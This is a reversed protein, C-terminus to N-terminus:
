FHTFGVHEGICILTVREAPVALAHLQSLVQLVQLQDYLDAEFWLVYDGDRAGDLRRDREAFDEEPAGLFAARLRRLEGDAVDPVPGEHLVDRWVLVDDVLGTQVLAPVTSDGNTVHLVPM